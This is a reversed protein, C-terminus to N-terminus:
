LFRKWRAFTSMCDGSVGLRNLRREKLDQCISEKEPRAFQHTNKDNVRAKRRTPTKACQLSPGKAGCVNSQKTAVAPGETVREDEM